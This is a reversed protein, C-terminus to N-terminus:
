VTKAGSMVVRNRGGRKASYLAEDAKLCLERADPADDPFVAAGISLSLSLPKENYRFTEKRVAELIREAARLVGERGTEPLIIEFEDGGYRAVVPRNDHEGARAVFDASRLTSALIRSVSRLIENGAEHGLTDNIQKFNDVDMMLVGCPHGHRRSRGVEAELTKEFHPHNFLNTLADHKARAHLFANDIAVAAHDTLLEALEIERARFAGVVETNDLYVAGILRRKLRLPVCLISLLDQRRVSDVLGLRSDNRADDAIVPKGTERVLNLV